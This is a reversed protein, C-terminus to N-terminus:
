DDNQGGRLLEDPNAWIVVHSEATEVRILAGQQKNDILKVKGKILVEDGNKFM